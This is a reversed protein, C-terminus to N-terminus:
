RYLTACSVFMLKLLDPDGSEVIQERTLMIRYAAQGTDVISGVEGRKKLMETRTISKVGDAAIIVDASVWEGEGVPNKADQVRIRTGEFDVETIVKGLKLDVLGSKECGGVIARQLAARHITQL